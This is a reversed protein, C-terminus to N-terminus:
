RKPASSAAGAPLTFQPKAQPAPQRFNLTFSIVKGMPNVHIYVIRPAKATEDPPEYDFHIIGPQGQRVNQNEFRVNLGPIGHPQVELRVEGPLDASIEASDSSRKVSDLQVSTKSAKIANLVENPDVMKNVSVPASPGAKPDTSSKM